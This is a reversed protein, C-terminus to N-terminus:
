FYSIKFICSLISKLLIKFIHSLISYSLFYRACCQFYGVTIINAEIPELWDSTPALIAPEFTNATLIYRRFINSLLCTHTIFTNFITFLRLNGM